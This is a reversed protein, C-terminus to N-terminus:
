RESAAMLQRGDTPPRMVEDISRRASSLRCHVIRHEPLKLAGLFSLMERSFFMLPEKVYQQDIKQRLRPHPRETEAM